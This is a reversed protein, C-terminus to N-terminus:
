CTCVRATPAQQLGPPSAQGPKPSHAVRLLTSSRRGSTAGSTSFNTGTCSTANTSSWTLMSSQGQNITTPNATLSATPQPSNNGGGSNSGGGGGCGALLIIFISLVALLASPHQRLSSTRM